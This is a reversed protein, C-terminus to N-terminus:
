DLGSIIGPESVIYASDFKRLRDRYMVEMRCWELIPKIQIFFLIKKKM